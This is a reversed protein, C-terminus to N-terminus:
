FVKIPHIKWLTQNKKAAIQKMINGAIKLAGKAQPGIKDRLFM